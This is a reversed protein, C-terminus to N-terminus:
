PRTAKDFEAIARNIEDRLGRLTWLRGRVLNRRHRPKPDPPADLIDGATDATRRIQTALRSIGNAAARAQAVNM